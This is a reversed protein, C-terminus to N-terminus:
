AAQWTKRRGLLVAMAALGAGFAWLSGPEPIETISIDDIDWFGADNQFQFALSNALTTASTVIFSEEVYGNTSTVATQTMLAVGDFIASFYDTYHAYLATDEMLEFTLLFTRTTTLNVTQGLTLSDTSAHTGLTVGQTGFYAGYVGTSPTYGDVGYLNTQALVSTAGTMTWGTFDGTEFGCNTVQQAIGDCASPSALAAGSGLCLAFAATPLFHKM